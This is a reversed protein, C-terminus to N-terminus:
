SASESPRNRDQELIWELTPLCGKISAGREKVAHAMMYVVMALSGEVWFSRLWSATAGDIEKQMADAIPSMNQRVGMADLKAVAEKADEVFREFRELDTM